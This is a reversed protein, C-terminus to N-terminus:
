YIHIIFTILYILMNDIYVIYVNNKIIKFNKKKKKKKSYKIINM